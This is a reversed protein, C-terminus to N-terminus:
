KWYAVSSHFQFIASLFRCFNFRFSTQVTRTNIYYRVITVVLVYLRISGIYETSYSVYWSAVSRAAPNIEGVHCRGRFITSLNLM